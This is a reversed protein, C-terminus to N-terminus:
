LATVVARTTSGSIYYQFCLNTTFSLLPIRTLQTQSGCKIESFRKVESDDIPDSSFLSISLAIIIERFQQAENRGPSVLPFSKLMPRELFVM